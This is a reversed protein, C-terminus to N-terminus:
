KNKLENLIQQLLWNPKDYMIFHASGDAFLLNYNSLNKYQEAYNQAVVEKGYPETAALITVPVKIKSLEERLDLKLLETYAYVYTERDAAVIWNELQEHKQKNLTMSAAMQMAMRRFAVTDLALLQKNYPNDYVINESKFNPIMLAGTSALADVAIIKQIQDNDETALWLSLVGGLSHGILTVDRLQLKNMYTEVGAKIKPFWPKAVPKVEGFGALTFIHCEYEKSLEKVAQNWVDGTCTFGPFLLIPDGKGVVKVKFPYEQSNGIVVSFFMLVLIIEKIAKM